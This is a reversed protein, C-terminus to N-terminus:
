KCKLLFLYLSGEFSMPFLAQFLSKAPDGHGSCLELEQAGHIEWVHTEAAPGCRQWSSGTDGVSALNESFTATM